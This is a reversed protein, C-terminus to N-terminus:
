IRGLVAKALTVAAQEDNGSTQNTAVQLTCDRDGAVFEVQGGGLGRMGGPLPREPGQVPDLPPLVKNIATGSQGIDLTVSYYNTSNEWGCSSAGGTSSGKGGDNAGILKEVEAATLLSCADVPKGDGASGGTNGTAESSGAAPPAAGVANPTGAITTGCGAMCLVALGAAIRTLRHRAIM